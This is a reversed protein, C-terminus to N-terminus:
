EAFYEKPIRKIVESIEQPELEMGMLKNTAAQLTYVGYDELVLQTFGNVSFIDIRKVKNNLNSRCFIRLRRVIKGETDKDRTYNKKTVTGSAICVLDGEKNMKCVQWKIFKYKDRQSKCQKIIEKTVRTYDTNITWSQAKVGNSTEWTAFYKM